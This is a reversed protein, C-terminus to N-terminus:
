YPLLPYFLLKFKYWKIRYRVQNFIVSKGLIRIPTKKNIKCNSKTFDFGLLKSRREEEDVITISSSM